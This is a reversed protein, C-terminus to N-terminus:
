RREGSASLWRHEYERGAVDALFADRVAEADEPAAFLEWLLRGRVDEDHGRRGTLRASFDNFRTIRGELTVVCFISKATNVVTSLFDRQLVVEREARKRDTIDRNISLVENDGSKVMRIERDSLRGSREVRQTEITES